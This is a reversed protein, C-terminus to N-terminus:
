SLCCIFGYVFEVCFRSLSGKLEVFTSTIIQLAGIIIRIVKIVKLGSLLYKFLSIRIVPVIVLPGARGRASASRPRDSDRRIRFLARGRLSGVLLDNAWLPFFRVDNVMVSGIRTSPTWFFVPSAFATTEARAAAVPATERRRGPRNCCPATVTVAPSWAPRGDAAGVTVRVEYSLREDRTM